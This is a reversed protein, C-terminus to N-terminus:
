FLHSGIVVSDLRFAPLSAALWNCASMSSNAGYMWDRDPSISALPRIGDVQNFRESCDAPRNRNNTGRLMAAELQVQDIADLNEL